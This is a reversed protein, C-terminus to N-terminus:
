NKGFYAEFFLQIDYSDDSSNYTINEVYINVDVIKGNNSESIIDGIKSGIIGTNTLIWWRTDKKHDKMSDTSPDKLFGGVNLKVRFSDDGNNMISYVKVSICHYITTIKDVFFNRIDNENIIISNEPEESEDSEGSEGSQKEIKEQLNRIISALDQIIDESEEIKKDKEKIDCKLKYILKCNESIISSLNEKIKDKVIVNKNLEDILKINNENNAQIKDRQFVVNTLENNLEIIKENKWYIVENLSDITETKDKVVEEIKASYYGSIFGM